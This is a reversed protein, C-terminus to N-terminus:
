QHPGGRNQATTSNANHRAGNDEASRTMAGGLAQLDRGAGAVTNCASLLLGSAALAAVIGGRLGRSMGPRGYQKQM